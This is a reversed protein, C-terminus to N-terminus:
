TLGKLYKRIVVIVFVGYRAVWAGLLALVGMWAIMLATALGGTREEDTM